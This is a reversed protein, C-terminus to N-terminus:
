HSKGQTTTGPGLISFASIIIFINENKNYLKYFYENIFFMPLIVNYFSLNIRGINAISIHKIGILPEMIVVAVFRAASLIVPDSYPRWVNSAWTNFL